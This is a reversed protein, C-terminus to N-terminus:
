KKALNVDLINLGKIQNIRTLISSIKYWKLYEIGECPDANLARCYEIYDGVSLKSQSAEIKSIYSHSKGMKLALIRMTYGQRNRKMKLWASIEKNLSFNTCLVQADDKKSLETNNKM